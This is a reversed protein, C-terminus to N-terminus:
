VRIGADGADVTGHRRLWRSTARRWAALASSRASAAAASIRADGASQHDCRSSTAIDPASSRADDQRRPRRRHRRADVLDSRRRRRFDARASRNVTVSDRAFINIGGGGFTVLGAGTRCWRHWHAAVQLGGGPALTEIGGGAMQDPLDFQRDPYQWELGPGSFLAEIATRLRAPLRWQAAPWRRGAHEPRRRYGEARQCYVQRLFRQQTLVPLARFRDWVDAPKPYEGISIMSSTLWARRCCTRNRGDRTEYLDLWHLPMLVGGTSYGKLYDPMSALNAPDLYTAALADYTPQKGKLGAM